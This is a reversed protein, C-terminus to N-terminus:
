FKIPQCVNYTNEGDLVSTFLHTPINHEDFLLQPRERRIANIVTGDEYILAHDYATKDPAPRWDNIGDESILHAGFRKHGTVTGHGDELIIHYMNDMYFFYPDEMTIGPMIDHNLWDYVGDFTKAGMIGIRANGYRFAIMVSGDPRILASPNNSDKIISIPKDCRKWPGNISHSCAYGIARSDLDDPTKNSIYFLVYRDGIKKITPNHIMCADWYPEGRGQLVTEVYTYPGEPRDSIGRVVESHELYGNPFFSTKPWRSAFIHYKGEAYIASGCWIYYNDDRFGAGRPIPCLAEYFEKKM